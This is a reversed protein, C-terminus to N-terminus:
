GFLDPNRNRYDCRQAHIERAVRSGFARELVAVDSMPLGGILVYRKGDLYFRSGIDVTPIMGLAERYILEYQEDTM